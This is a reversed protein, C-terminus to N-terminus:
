AGLSDIKTRRPQRRRSRAEPECDKERFPARECDAAAASTSTNERYHKTAVGLVIACLVFAITKEGAHPRLGPAAPPMSKKASM